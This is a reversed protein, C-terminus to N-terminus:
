HATDAILGSNFLSLVFTTLAFAALGLPGPNAVRAAPAQPATQPAAYQPATPAPAAPTLTSSPM